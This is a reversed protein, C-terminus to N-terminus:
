KQIQKLVGRRLIENKSNEVELLANQITEVLYLPLCTKVEHNCAVGFLEVEKERADSLIAFQRFDGECNPCPFWIIPEGDEHIEILHPKKPDEHIESKTVNVPTDETIIQQESGIKESDKNEELGMTLHLLPALNDSILYDNILECIACKNQVSLIGGCKSCYRFSLEKM